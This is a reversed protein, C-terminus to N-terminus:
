DLEARKHEGLTGKKYKRKPFLHWSQKDTCTLVITAQSCSLFVALSFSGTLHEPSSICEASADQMLYQLLLANRPIYSLWLLFVRPM